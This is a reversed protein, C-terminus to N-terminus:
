ASSPMRSLLGDRPSPSTYLLCDRIMGIINGRQQTLVEEVGASDIANITINANLNQGGMKDNPIVNYGSSTPQIVEPGQEGVMIEGGTAYGRRMGAAGGPKFTNANSGMGSEGRLFALEGAGGRQSVDVRNNRKGIQISQPKATSTDGTGAGQFTQKQILAVQAAGMAAVAMALPTGFFGTDGMTKMVGAATNAITQAIQM